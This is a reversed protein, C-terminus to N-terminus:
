VSFAAGMTRAISPYYAVKLCLASMLCERSKDSAPIHDTWRAKARSAGTMEGTAGVEGQALFRQTWM